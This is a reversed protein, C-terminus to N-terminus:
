TKLWRLRSAAIGAPFEPRGACTSRITPARTGGPGMLIAQWSYREAPAECRRDGLPPGRASGTELRTCRDAAATGLSRRRLRDEPRPRDKVLRDEVLRFCRMPRSRADRATCRHSGTFAARLM